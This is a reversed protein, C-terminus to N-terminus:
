IGKPTKSTLSNSFSVKSLWPYRNEDFERPTKQHLVKTFSAEILPTGTPDWEMGMGALWVGKPIKWEWGWDMVIGM